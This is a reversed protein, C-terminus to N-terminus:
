LSKFEEFFHKEVFFLEPWRYTLKSLEPTFNRGSVRIIKVWHRFIISFIQFNRIPIFNRSIKEHFYHICKELINLFFDQYYWFTKARHAFNNNFNREFCNRWFTRRSVCLTNGVLKKFHNRWYLLIQKQDVVPFSVLIM